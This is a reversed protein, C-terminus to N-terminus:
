DTSKLRFQTAPGIEMHSNVAFAEVTLDWPNRKDPEEDPFVFFLRMFNGQIKGIVPGDGFIDQVNASGVIRFYFGVEELRYLSSAPWDIQVTISGYVGCPMANEGPSRRVDKLSVKFAPVREHVYGEATKRFKASARKESPTYRMVSDPATCAAVPEAVVWCAFLVSCIILVKLSM